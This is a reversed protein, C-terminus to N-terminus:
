KFETRMQAAASTRLVDTARSADRLVIMGVLLALAFALAM